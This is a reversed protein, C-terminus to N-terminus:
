KWIELIDNPNVIKVLSQLNLECDEDAEVPIESNDDVEDFIPEFSDDDSTSIESIQVKYSHYCVSQCMQKYHADHIPPTVYKKLTENISDFELRNELVEQVELLSFTLQVAKKILLNESKVRQTSQIDATFHQSTFCKVWSHRRNLLITVIYKEEVVYKEALGQSRREFVSECHSRQISKFDKLFEQYLPGLRPRLNKSLNQYLHYLCQIHHSKLFVISAAAIMALDADTVFTLPPIECADLCCKLLWEYTEQREDQILAQAALDQTLFIRDPYLSAADGLNLDKERKIKQIANGLNHVVYFEIQDLIEESFTKYAVAFKLTEAVIEHNHDNERIQKSVWHQNQFNRVIDGGLDCKFVRKRCTSDKSKESKHKFVAFRNQRAYQEVFHAAVSISPFWTGVKIEIPTDILPLKRNYNEFESDLLDDATTLINEDTLIDELENVDSFECSNDQIIECSM